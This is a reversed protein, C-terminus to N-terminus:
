RTEARTDLPKESFYVQEDCDACIEGFKVSTLPFVPFPIADGHAGCVQCTLDNILESM